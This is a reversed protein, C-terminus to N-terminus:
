SDYFFTLVRVFHNEQYTGWSGWLIAQYTSCMVASIIIIHITTISITLSESIFQIKLVWPPWHFTVKFLTRHQKILLIHAFQWDPARTVSTRSSTMPKIICFWNEGWKMIPVNIAVQAPQGNLNIVHLMLYNERSKFLFVTTKFIFTTWVALTAM